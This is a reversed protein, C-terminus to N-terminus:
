CKTIHNYKNKTGSTVTRAATTGATVQKMDAISTHQIPTTIKQQRYAQLYENVRTLLFNQREETSLNPDIPPQTPRPGISSLPRSYSKLSSSPRNLNNSEENLNALAQRQYYLLDNQEILDNIITELQRERRTERENPDRSPIVTKSISLGNDATYFSRPLNSHTEKRIPRSSEPYPASPPQPISIPSQSSSSTTRLRDIASWNM